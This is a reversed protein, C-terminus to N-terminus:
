YVGELGLCDLVALVRLPTNPCLQFTRKKSDTQRVWRWLARALGVPQLCGTPVAIANAPCRRVPARLRQAASAEARAQLETPEAGGLNEKPMPQGRRFSLNCGM